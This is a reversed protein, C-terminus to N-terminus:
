EAGEYPPQCVDVPVQSREAANMALVLKRITAFDPTTHGREIRNLTEPRVAARRALEAQSLGVALRRRVLKEALRARDLEVGAGSAADAAPPVSSTAGARRCLHDFISERVVVYRIGGLELRSCEIPHNDKRPM